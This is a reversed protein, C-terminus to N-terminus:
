RVTRAQPLGTPGLLFSGSALVSAVGVASIDRFLPEPDTLRGRGDPWAQTSLCWSTTSDDRLSRHVHSRRIAHEWVLQFTMLGLASSTSFDDVLEVTRTSARDPRIRVLPLLLGRGKPMLDHQALLM